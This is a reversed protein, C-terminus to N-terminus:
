FNKSLKNNHIAIKNVTPMYHYLLVFLSQDEALMIQISYSVNLLMNDRTGFLLMLFLECLASVQLLSYFVM